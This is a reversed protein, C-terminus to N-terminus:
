SQKERSGEKFLRKLHIFAISDILAHVTIVCLLGATLYLCGLLLGCSFAFVAYIMKGLEIPPKAWFRAHALMFIFSAIWIGTYYQIVGRFLIEEGIGALIGAILLSIDSSRTLVRLHNLSIISKKIRYVIFLILSIGIGILLGYAVQKGATIFNFINQQRIFVIVFLSVIIFLLEVIISDRLTVVHSKEKKM